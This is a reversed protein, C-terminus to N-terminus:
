EEQKRYYASEELLRDARYLIEEPVRSPNLMRTSFESEDYGPIGNRSERVIAYRISHFPDGMKESIDPEIFNFKFVEELDTYENLPRRVYISSEARPGDSKSRGYEPDM